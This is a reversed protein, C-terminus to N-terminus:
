IVRWSDSEAQTVQALGHSFSVNLKVWLFSPLETPRGKLPPQESDHEGVSVQVPIIM